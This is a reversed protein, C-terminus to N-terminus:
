APADKPGPLFERLEKVGEIFRTVPLGYSEDKDWFAKGANERTDDFLKRDTRERVSKGLDAGEIKKRMEDPDGLGGIQPFKGGPRSSGPV